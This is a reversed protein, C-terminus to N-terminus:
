EDRQSVLRVDNVSILFESNSAAGCVAVCAARPPRLGQPFPVNSIVAEGGVEVDISLGEMDFKVIVSRWEDDATCLRAPQYLVSAINDGPPSSAQRVTVHNAYEAGGSFNGSLDLAVGVLAGVKGTFGLPGEAEFNTDWGKVSPDLLYACLGEGGSQGHMHYDFKLFIESSIQELEFQMRCIFVGQQPLTAIDPNATLQFGYDLVGHGCLRFNGPHTVAVPIGENDVDYDHCATLGGNMYVVGAPEISGAESGTLESPPDPAGEKVQNDRIKVQHRQLWEAFERDEAVSPCRGEALLQLSLISSVQARTVFGAPDVSLTLAHKYIRLETASFM